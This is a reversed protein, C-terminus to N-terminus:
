TSMKLLSVCLFGPSTIVTFIEWPLNILDIEAYACLLSTSNLMPWSFFIPRCNLSFVNVKQSLMGCSAM